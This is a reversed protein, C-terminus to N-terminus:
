EKASVQTFQLNPLPTPLFARLQLFFLPRTRADTANLFFANAAFSISAAWAAGTFSFRPVLLANLVGNLVACFLTRILALRTLGETVFWSGQILGLFTFLAGWCHITLVPGAAAYGPGFVTVILPTALFTMPIAVSLALLVLCHNLAQIRRHYRKLDRARTAIIAPVTSTVIAMPVFSWAEYVRAAVAYVGLAENGVLRGLLLQDLRMYAISVMGALALPWSERLAALAYTPSFRCASLANGKFRYMVSLTVAMLIAEALATWAFAQIPAHNLLLWIKLLNISILAGNRAVVAYKAQTQSQFWLSISQFAEFLMGAAIISTLQLLLTEGSRLWQVAGLALSGALIGSALKILFATGVIEGQRGPSRVLDRVVIDDLGAGALASFLAIVTFAYSYVGYLGTGLERALWASVLLTLGARVLRDAFLWGTNRLIKQLDPPSAAQLPETM